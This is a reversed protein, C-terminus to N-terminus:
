MGGTPPLAGRALVALAVALAVRRARALPELTLCCAIVVAYEALMSFSRLTEEYFLGSSRGLRLAKNLAFWLIAFLVIAITATVGATTALSRGDVRDTAGCARRAIAILTLVGLALVVFAEVSVGLPEQRPSMFTLGDPVLPQRLQLLLGVAMAAALRAVTGAQSRGPALWIPVVATGALAVALPLYAMEPLRGRSALCLALLLYLLLEAVLDGAHRNEAPRESESAVSAV